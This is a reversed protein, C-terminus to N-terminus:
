MTVSRTKVLSASLLDSIGKIYADVKYLKKEKCSIDICNCFLRKDYSENIEFISKKKIELYDRSLVVNDGNFIIACYIYMYIEFNQM